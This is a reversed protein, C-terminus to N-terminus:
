ERVAEITPFEQQQRWALVVLNDLLKGVFEATADDVIRGEEVLGRVGSVLVEPKLVVPTNTASLISRLHKQARITGWKGPAAGMIATPKGVLPPTGRDLSRSAWDLANKLVGPVSHNYEPTAILLADAEHLAQHFDLVSEALGDEDEANYFPLGDLDHIDITMHPPAVERALELLM